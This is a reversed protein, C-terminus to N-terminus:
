SEMFRRDCVLRGTLSSIILRKGGGAITWLICLTIYDSNPVTGSRSCYKECTVPFFKIIHYVTQLRLIEKGRNTCVARAGNVDIEPLHSKDEDLRIYLLPSQSGHSAAQSGRWRIPTLLPTYEQFRAPLGKRLYGM